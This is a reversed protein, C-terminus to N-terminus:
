NLAGVMDQHLATRMEAPIAHGVGAYTRLEVAVQAARLREAAQRATDVPVIPDAEGHHICIVGSAPRDDITEALLRGAIPLCLRFQDRYQAALAFCMDGGQSVGLYIPKGQTPFEQQWHAVNKLLLDVVSLIFQYQDPENQAYFHDPFWAYKGDSEVQGHPIIIRAPAAFGSLLLDFTQAADSGMFHLPVILPLEATAGADGTLYTTYALHQYDNM